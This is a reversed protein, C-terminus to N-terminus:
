GIYERTISPEFLTGRGSPSGTYRDDPLLRLKPAIQTKNLGLSHLRLIQRYNTM